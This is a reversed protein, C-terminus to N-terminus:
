VKQLFILADFIKIVNLSQYVDQKSLQGHIIDIKLSISAQTTKVLYCIKDRLRISHKFAVSKCDSISVLWRPFNASVAALSSSRHFPFMSSTIVGRSISNAFYWHKYIILAVCQPLIEFIHVSTELSSVEEM